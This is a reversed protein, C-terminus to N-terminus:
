TWSHDNRAVDAALDSFFLSPIWLSAVAFWSAFRLVLMPDLPSCRM